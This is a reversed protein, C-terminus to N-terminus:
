KVIMFHKDTYDDEEGYFLHIRNNLPINKLQSTLMRRKEYDLVM